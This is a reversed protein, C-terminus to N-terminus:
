LWGGIIWPLRVGYWAFGGAAPSASTGTLPEDPRAYMLTVEDPARAPLRWPDLVDSDDKCVLLGPANVDPSLQDLFFKRSCRACIGIGYSSRGTPNLYKM